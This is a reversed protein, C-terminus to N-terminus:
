RGKRSRLLLEKTIVAFLSFSKASEPARRRRLLFGLYALYIFEGMPHGGAARELLDIRKKEERNARVAVKPSVAAWAFVAADSPSEGRESTIVNRQLQEFFEDLAAPFDDRDLLSELLSTEEKCAILAVNFTPKLKNLFRPGVILVERTVVSTM